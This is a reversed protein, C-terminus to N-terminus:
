FARARDSATLAEEHTLVAPLAEHIRRTLNEDNGALDYLQPGLLALLAQHARRRVPALPDYVRRGGPRAGFGAGTVSLASVPIASVPAGPDTASPDGEPLSLGPMRGLRDSLSM